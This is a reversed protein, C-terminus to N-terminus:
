PNDTRFFWRQTRRASIRGAGQAPASFGDVGCGSVKTGKSVKSLPRFSERARFATHERVAESGFCEATGVFFTWFFDLDNRYLVPLIPIYM